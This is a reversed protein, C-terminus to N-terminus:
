FWQQLDSVVMFLLQSDGNLAIRKIVAPDDKSECRSGDYISIIGRHLREQQVIADVHAQSWCNLYPMHLAAM